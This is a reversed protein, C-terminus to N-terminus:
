VLGVSLLVDILLLLGLLLRQLVVVRSLFLHFKDHTFLKCLYSVCNKSGSITITLFLCPPIYCLPLLPMLMISCFKCSLVLYAHRLLIFCWTLAPFYGLEGLFFAHLSVRSRWFQHEEHLCM